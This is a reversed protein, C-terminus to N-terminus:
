NRTISVNDLYVPYRSQPSFGFLGPAGERHATQHPVEITWSEPEPDDRLWAKARVVGTGDPAIDVRSKIRYWKGADWRFPVSARVRDYNSSVELVQSNGVLAIIYRQNIVGGNSRMRRNGDTLVDAAITYNSMGPPGIFTMARQFLVNDLTKALVKSGHAERVEWKFRAGIWPLPPYAFKVGADATSDEDLVFSEFNEAFPAEPLVRARAVGAIGTPTVARIAGASAEGGGQLRGSASLTGDVASKVKATPPIFKSFTADKAEGVCHGDADVGVARFQVTEGPHLLVDNPVVQLRALAGAAPQKHLAPGSVMGQGPAGTGFCYLHNRTHVYLRGNWVSPSGICEGDLEEADLVEVGNDGPKLIYFTGTIMPIYLKGDAYLPSAHLQSNALRHEWLVKGTDADVCALEGTHTVQYVRNGVLVPSSTFMTLDNRWLESSQDLVMPGAQGPAPEAGLKIAVMRGVQSSDVSEKGQIAIVRDQDLLVSSNVGGLSIRYRWLPAGDRADVCVVNGCGTGCYLVRRNHSWGFVPSSFSSDQPGIGPTSSWVLDGTRKDFAYFRDRAPGDAGWYSTIAHLIMLDNDISPAGTRGNPFTLRGFREMLSVQWLVKGEPSVCMTLGCTSQLYINGTEPDITPSGISYRNYVTDSLYDNFGIEWILQGTKEDLCSLVEQLDPGEGRYGWSYVRGNAMVPAGRGSIDYTWLHNRGGVEVTDPLGTEPSTGNQFPGRWHLWGQVDALAATSLCGAALLVALATRRLRGFQQKLFPSRMM